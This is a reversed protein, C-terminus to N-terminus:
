KDVSSVRGLDKHQALLSNKLRYVQTAYVVLDDKTSLNDSLLKLYFNKIPITDDWKLVDVISYFDLHVLLNSGDSVSVVIGCNSDTLTKLEFDFGFERSLTGLNYRRKLKNDFIMKVIEKTLSVKSKSGSNLGYSTYPNVFTGKSSIYDIDLIFNGGFISNGIPYCIATYNTEQPSGIELLYPVKFGYENTYTSLKILNNTSM